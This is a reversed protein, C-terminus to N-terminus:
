RKGGNEGKHGGGTGPAAPHDGWAQVRYFGGSGGNAVRWRKLQGNHMMRQILQLSFLDNVIIEGGKKAIQAANGNKRSTM